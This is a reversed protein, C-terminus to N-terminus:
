PASLESGGVGSVWSWWEDQNSETHSCRLVFVFGCLHLFGFWFAKELQFTDNRGESVHRLLRQTYVCFDLASSSIGAM